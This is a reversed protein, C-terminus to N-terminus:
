EYRWRAQLTITRPPHMYVFVPGELLFPDNGANRIREDTLNKALVSLELGHQQDVLALRLNSTTHRKEFLNTDLDPALYQEDRYALELRSRLLWRPGLPREYSLGLNGSWEPAYPLPEGTLDQRCNQIFDGQTAVYNIAQQVTCTADPYSDYSADLYALSLDLMWAENILFKGDFEIGQSVAEAANTVVLGTGVFNSVQLDDYRTHFLAANATARGGLLTSKLGIEFAIAEEENFEFPAPLLEGELDVGILAFLPNSRDYTYEAPDDGKNGAENFGGSKFAQSASAYLLIDDDWQYSIKLSPSLKDIDRSREIQHEFVDRSQLAVVAISQQAPSLSAALDAQTSYDTYALNRTAEKTEKTYRLGINVMTRTSAHWNISAFAAFTEADQDFAKRFGVDPVLEFPIDTVPGGAAESFSASLRWRSRLTNNLYYLGAIFDLTEGPPSTLRFEQSVQEFSQPINLQGVEIPSFDIDTGDEFDYESYGTISTLEYDGIGANVHLTLNQNDTDNFEPASVSRTDRAGSYRPDNERILPEWEGINILRSARGSLDSHGKEYKFLTDIERETPQWALLMRGVWQTHAPENVDRLTDYLFGGYDAYKVALRGLLTESLPGSVMGEVTNSDFETEHSLLAAATFSDTPRASTITMAGAITNKGFLTGQPGRLVEVHEVDLFPATFQRSRGAYVDDIFLGVSQDFGQNDGSGLGRIYISTVSPGQNISLNPVLAAMEELDRIGNQAILSGQVVSVSVPVDQLNEARKQATVIVEELLPSASAPIAAPALLLACLLPTAIMPRTLSHTM